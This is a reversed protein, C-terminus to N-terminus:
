DCFVRFKQLLIKINEEVAEELHLFLLVLFTQCFLLDQKISQVYEFYGPYM